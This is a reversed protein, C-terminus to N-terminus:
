GIYQIYIDGDKGGAPPTTGVYITRSQEASLKDQKGLILQHEHAIAQGLSLTDRDHEKKLDAVKKNVATLGDNSSQQVQTVKQDLDRLYTTDGAELNNLRQKIKTINTENSNSTQTVNTIRQSLANIAQNTNIKFTNYSNKFVAWEADYDVQWKQLAADKDQLAKISDGVSVFTDQHTQLTSNIDDVNKQLTSANKEKGVQADIRAKIGQLELYMHGAINDVIPTAADYPDAVYTSM